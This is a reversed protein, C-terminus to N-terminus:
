FPLKDIFSQTFTTSLPDLKAPEPILTIVEGLLATLHLAINAHTVASSKLELHEIQGPQFGALTVDVRYSGDSLSAFTFVGNQNTVATVTQETAENRLTVTAGPLPDSNQAVVGTFAALQGKAVQEITLSVDSGHIKICSKRSIAFAPVSLLAAVMATAIRSARRRLERLGRPCDRTLVTGDARRYLRACVRGESRVLAQVEDRTMQAFNYVNLSCVACHRVREDSEMREWSASCPSAIRLGDIQDAM